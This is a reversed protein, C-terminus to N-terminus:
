KVIEGYQSRTIPSTYKNVVRVDEVESPEEEEDEIGEDDEEEEQVDENTLISNMNDIFESDIDMELAGHKTIGFYNNMKQPARKKRNLEFGLRILRKLDLYTKTGMKSIRLLRVKRGTTADTYRKKTRHLYQYKVYEKVRDTIETPKMGLEDALERACMRDPYKEFMISLVRYLLVNHKHYIGKAMIM